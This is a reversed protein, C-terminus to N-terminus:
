WYYEMQSRSCAPCTQFLSLFMLSFKTKLEEIQLKPCCSSDGHSEVFKPCIESLIEVASEDLKTPAEGDPNYCAAEPLTLSILFLKM